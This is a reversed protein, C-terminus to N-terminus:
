SKRKAVFGREADGQFGVSEYLRHAAARKTGSLLMVKCADRSWAFELAHRLVARGLGRGRQATLTVVHEIVAFPRGGSALNPVLVIMCTSALQGAVEAVVVRINADALVDAWRSAAVKPPLAPDEPRLERYLKLMEALDDAGAFRILAHTTM